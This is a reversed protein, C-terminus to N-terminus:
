FETPIRQISALSETWYYAKKFFDLVEGQELMLKRYMITKGMDLGSMIERWSDLDGALLYTAEEQAESRSVLSAETCVGDHLDLLLCDPGEPMGDVALGLKCDLGQKAEEIWNWFKELKQARVEESPGANVAEKAAQAWEPSFFRSPM